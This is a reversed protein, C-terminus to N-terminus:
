KGDYDGSVDCTQKYNYDDHQSQGYRLVRDVLEFEESSLYLCGCDDGNILLQIHYSNSSTKNTIKLEIDDSM